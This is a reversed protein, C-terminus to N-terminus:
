DISSMSNSPKNFILWLIRYKIGHNKHNIIEILLNIIKKNKRPYGNARLITRNNIKCGVSLFYRIGSEDSNYIRNDLMKSEDYRPDVGKAILYKYIKDHVYQVAYLCPTYMEFGTREVIWKVSDFRGHSVSIELCDILVRPTFGRIGEPDALYLLDAIDTRNIDLAAGVANDFSAHINVSGEKIIKRVDDIDGKHVNYILNIDNQNDM